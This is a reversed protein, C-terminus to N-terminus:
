TTEIELEQAPIGAAELMRNCLSLVQASSLQLYIYYGNSLPWSTANNAFPERSFYSKLGRDIFADISSMELVREATQFAVDRWSKVPIIEGMFRVLVPQTWTTAKIPAEGMAPWIELIQDALFDGREKIAHDNWHGIPKGFWDRNIVLAHKALKNRKVDFPANSLSSNWEQTVLTLNGLTHLYQEQIEQWRDGLYTKWGQDLTQPLIHEITASADLVTYGGTGQSLRRNITDLVLRLKQLVGSQRDYCEITLVSGRVRNDSPYNRTALAQKLTAAARTPDIERALTPFAKNLYNTPEGSIWRRVLYNELVELCDLFDVRATQGQALKDYLYLLFPAATAMELVDLRKLRSQIELDPENEPRLLRDYYTAFRHLEEVEHAFAAGDAYEQQARDRFRAYVHETNCLRGTRMALYHRLFATLEGLKSRGVVNKEPLANEIKAWHDRFVREQTGPALRMAIYNRVLDAQTLPKGKANLSEFVEFVRDRQDLEIYIVQLCSSIVIFLREPEILNAEVWRQIESRLFAYAAPVRSNAEPPTQGDLLAIYSDRDGYKTTPLLKYRLEGDEDANLLFRDIKKVLAARSADARILDRLACLMLSITVLRQQGDVLRFATMTGSRTGDNMVVLSGMFHEPPASESYEEYVALVDATLTRWQDKEWAYERQFHPLVYHVDGGSSFVKTIKLSESKM